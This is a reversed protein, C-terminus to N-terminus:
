EAFGSWLTAEHPIVNHEVDAGTGPATQSLSVRTVTYGTVFLIMAALIGATIRDSRSLQLDTSVQPNM